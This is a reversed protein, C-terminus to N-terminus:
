QTQYVRVYDVAMFVPFLTTEDPYGPWVGGVAVNLIFFFPQNFPYPQSGVTSPDVTHYVEDDMLWRIEDEQWEISFVHFEEDFTQGNPLAITGSQYQHQSPDAGWHATGYVRNPQHGILEMIDIEGCDPWGIEDFNAGLMWIAPWIGQGVPLVARVDIRGYQFEQLNISKLRASSFNDPGSQMAKLILKGDQVYSNDPSSTYNQLEQNGWGSAGLDYSWNGTNISNGDFEDSWVLQMGDYADAAQYGADGIGVTSDDNRITGVAVQEFDRLYGNIPNSLVVEFKEDSELYEDVVVPVEVMQSTVGVDFTLTGSVSTFDEGAEASLAVTEFDVSAPETAAEALRVEFEFVDNSENEFATVDYAWYFEAPVPEVVPDGCGDCGALLGAAFVWATLSTLRM